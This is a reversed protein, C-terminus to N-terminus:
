YLWLANGRLLKHGNGRTRDSHMRIFLTDGGERYRHKLYKIFHTTLHGRLGPRERASCVCNMRGKKM